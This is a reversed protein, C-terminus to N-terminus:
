ASKQAIITLTNKITSQPHQIFTVNINLIDFYGGNKPKNSQTYVLEMYIFPLNKNGTFNQM